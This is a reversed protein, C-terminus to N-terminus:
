LFHVCFFHLCPPFTIPKGIDIMDSTTMRQSARLANPRSLVRSENFIDEMASLDRDFETIAPSSLAFPDSKNFDMYDDDFDINLAEITTSRSTLRLMTPKIVLDLAAMDLTMMRDQNTFHAPKPPLTPDLTSQELNSSLREVETKPDFYGPMYKAKLANAALSSDRNLAARKVCKGDYDPKSDMTENQNSTARKILDPKLKNPSEATGAKRTASTIPPSIFTDGQEECSSGSLTHAIENQDRGSWQSAVKPDVNYTPSKPSIHPPGSGNNNYNARPKAVSQVPGRSPPQPSPGRVYPTPYAGGSTYFPPPGGMSPVPYPPFPSQPPPGWYPGSSGVRHDFTTPYAAQSINAHQLPIAGLSHDRSAWGGSQVPYPGYGMHQPPPHQQQPPQGLSGWSEFRNWSAFRAHLDHPPPMSHDYPGGPPPGMPPPPGISSYSGMRSGPMGGFSPPPGYSISSHSGVRELDSSGRVPDQWSFGEVSM